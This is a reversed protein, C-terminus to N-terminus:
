DEDPTGNPLTLLRTSILEQQADGTGSDVLELTIRLMDIPFAFGASAADDVVFRRVGRALVQTGAGNVRRVLQNNGDPTPLLAYSIEIPDWAVSQMSATLDPWGDGNADLPLVFVVERATVAAGEAANAPAHRHVLPADGLADGDVFYPYEVGVINAFGSRELELTIRQMARDARRVLDATRGGRDQEARGSDLTALCAGILLPFLSMAIMSELLTTGRRGNPVELESRHLRM